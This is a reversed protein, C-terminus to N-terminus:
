GLRPPVAEETVPPGIPPSQERAQEPAWPAPRPMRWRLSTVLVGVVLVIGGVLVHNSRTEM